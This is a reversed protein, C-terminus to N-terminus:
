FTKTKLNLIKGLFQIKSWLPPKKEKKEMGNKGKLTFSNWFKSIWFKEFLQPFNPFNCLEYSM